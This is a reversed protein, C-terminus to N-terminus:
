RVRQRVMSRAPPGGPEHSMSKTWSSLNGGQKVKTNTMSKSWTGGNQAKAKAQDRLMVPNSKVKNSSSIKGETASASAAGGISSSTGARGTSTGGLGLTAASTGGASASGATGVTASGGSKAHAGVTSASPGGQAMAISSVAMLTAAMFALRVRRM